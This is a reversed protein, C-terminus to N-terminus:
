SDRTVVTKEVVMGDGTEIISMIKQAVEKPDMFTKSDIESDAKKFLETSMGGPYFGAVKVGSGHLDRRLVDTFGTVGYKSAVYVSQGERPNLGSTSSVNVIFGKKADKMAPLFKHTVFLVGKLNVDVVRNIEEISYSTLEGDLFVGANNVLIDVNGVEKAMRDVAEPDSVDCVVFAIKETGLKETAERLKDESRGCIVVDAGKELLAEAVAFGLGANGGTVLAREGEIRM